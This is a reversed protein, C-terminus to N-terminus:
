YQYDTNIKKQYDTTYKARNKIIEIDPMLTLILQVFILM